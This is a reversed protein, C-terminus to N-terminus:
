LQHHTWWATELASFMAHSCSMFVLIVTQTQAYVTTARDHWVRAPITCEHLASTTDLKRTVPSVEASARQRSLRTVPTSLAAQKLAGTTVSTCADHQLLVSPCGDAHGSVWSDSVSIVQNAHAQICGGSMCRTCDRRRCAVLAVLAVDRLCSPSVLAVCVAVADGSCALRFV